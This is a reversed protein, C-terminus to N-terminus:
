SRLIQDELVFLHVADIIMKWIFKWVSVHQKTSKEEKEDKGKEGKETPREGYEAEDDAEEIYTILQEAKKEEHLAFEKSTIQDRFKPSAASLLSVLDKFVEGDKEYNNDEKEKEVGQFTSISLSQLEIYISCYTIM